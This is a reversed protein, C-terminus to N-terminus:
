SIRREAAVSIAARGNESCISFNAAAAKDVGPVVGSQRYSRGYREGRVIQLVQQRDCIKEARVVDM